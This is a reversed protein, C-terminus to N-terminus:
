LTFAFVGNGGMPPHFFFFLEHSFSTHFARTCLGNAFSFEVVIDYRADSDINAFAKIKEDEELEVFDRASIKMVKAFPEWRQKIQLTKGKSDKFVPIRRKKRRYATGHM